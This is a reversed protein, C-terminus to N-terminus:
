TAPAAATGQRPIGAIRLRVALRRLDPAPIDGPGLLMHRGPHAKGLTWSLWIWRGAVRANGRLRGTYNRGAADTLLWGGGDLWTLRQIRRGGGLWGAHSLGAGVMVAAGLIAAVWATMAAPGIDRDISTYVLVSAVGCGALAM